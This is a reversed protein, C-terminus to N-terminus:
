TRHVGESGAKDRSVVEQAVSLQFAFMSGYNSLVDSSVSIEDDNSLVLRRGVVM